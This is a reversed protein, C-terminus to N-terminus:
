DKCRSQRLNAIVAFGASLNIGSFGFVNCYLTQRRTSEIGNSYRIMSNIAPLVIIRINFTHPM